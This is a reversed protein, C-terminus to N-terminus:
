SGSKIYTRLNVILSIAGSFFLVEVWESLTLGVTKFVPQLAPLYIAISLMATSIMVAFVLYMNRFFNIEFISHRESRCEFVHILQSMVLTAFAMTRAKQLDGGSINLTIAYIGFTCLGILIGRFVIKFALGNSFVSEGKGRPPRRMVDKDPHDVGLAIAPLGDTVLNVWLIQIPLLPISFGLLSAIFMTLVEGLNCSLLYRIFKRINDYIIRGEEVAAVITAFNDDLLVMASAEKTVDTGSQGMSVGIDAEKVAPADNVGDGTMAVIHGNNKYAKVIRLKHKPTVRAYISTENVIKGLSKDDIMDLDKGTLVRDGDRILRLQKAVAVATEKHDGTIMVPKIGAIKCTEIARVAEMRPPDIMGVLGLFVLDKEYIGIDKKVPLINLKRYAIALVRLAERAMRDNQQFIMNKIQPTMKKIGSSFCAYNCLDLTNDIAGKLFIYYEGGHKVIVSMRKRNSDFAIEDLRVYRMDIDKKLIGAKYACVLIAIETPDGSASEIENGSRRFQLIRGGPKSTKIESNNCSVAAELLMGVVPDQKPSIKKSNRLFDGEVDYGIGSVEINNGDCYISRITMKNETLTGTKDSCIVNTCGLTEVAPLKRVLANRKLMRQVGLTLSVTVIAPLGEPIAAVALSVGALFMTYINEGKLIGTVTVIACAIICCFVMVKGMKDLRRQLPTEEEGVSQLMDAIKGMETAMGTSIVVAKGRGNTIITGMYITNQPTGVISHKDSEEVAMKDVPVSEGTLLSEDVQIGSADILMSDAPVRDGAELLILDDSVIERAPIVIMRGDRVVKVTPATLQKLAEMSKETRYEQIFGMIGNLIIIATITIADAKEGMFLSIVTAGFLVWIIFDNFQSLLISVASKKKKELLINEGLTKLRNEAEESSLGERKIKVNYVYMDKKESQKRFLM